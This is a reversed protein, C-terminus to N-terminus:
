FSFYIPILINFFTTNTGLSVFEVTKDLATQFKFNSPKIRLRRVQDDRVLKLIYLGSNESM